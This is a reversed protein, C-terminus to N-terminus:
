GIVVDPAAPLELAIQWGTGVASVRAAIKRITVMLGPSSLAAVTRDSHASRAVRKRAIPKRSGACFREQMM